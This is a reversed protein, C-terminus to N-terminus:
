KQRDLLIWMICIMVVFERLPWGFRRSLAWYVVFHRKRPAM